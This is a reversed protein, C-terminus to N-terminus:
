VRGRGLTLTFTAGKEPESEVSLDGGMAEALERSIALGLGTGEVSRTLSEDVQVFPEFIRALQEPAIGIGTDCVRIGVRSGGPHLSVDIRGGEPTFTVANALLNVLIQVLKQPDAYVLLDSAVDAHLGRCAIGKQVALPAIITDVELLVDGLPVDRLGTDVREVSVGAYSLVSEVLRLLHRRNVQIRRVDALQAEALPGRVGSELLDAYGGIANLPTRLEHSMTALFRSKTLNAEEARQQAAEAEAEAHGARALLRGNDVAVACRGALDEALAPEGAAFAGEGRGTVYTIAGLVEGRAVLPVTMVSGTELARLLELNRPTGAVRELMEDGVPSLVECCAARVAAAGGLGDGPLPPWGALLEAAEAERAPDPHIVAIRRMQGDECLDVFCWAGLRPLSQRAVSALAGEAGPADALMRTAAALFSPGIDGADDGGGHGSHRATDAAAAPPPRAVTVAAEAPEAAALTGDM